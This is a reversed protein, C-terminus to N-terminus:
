DGKRGGRGGERVRGGKKRRGQRERGGEKGERGGKKRGGRRVDRQREKEGKRGREGKLSCFGSCCAAMHHECGILLAWACSVDQIRALLGPSPCSCQSSLSRIEKKQQRPHRKVAGLGPMTPVSM